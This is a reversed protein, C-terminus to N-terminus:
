RAEARPGDTGVSILLQTGREWVSLGGVPRDTDRARTKRTMSEKHGPLSDSEHHRRPFTSKSSPWLPTESRWPSAISSPGRHPQIQPRLAGCFPAPPQQRHAWEMRSMREVAEKEFELSMAWIPCREFGAGCVNLGSRDLRGLGLHELLSRVHVHSNRQAQM